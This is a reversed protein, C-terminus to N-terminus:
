RRFPHLPDPAPARAKQVTAYFEALTHEQGDRLLKRIYSNVFRREKEALGGVLEGGGGSPGGRPSPRAAAEAAAQASGPRSGSADGAGAAPAARVRKPPPAEEDADGDSDSSSEDRESGDGSAQRGGATRKNNRASQRSPQQAPSPQESQPPRKEALWERWRAIRVVRDGELRAVTVEGSQRSSGSLSTVNIVSGGVPPGAPHAADFAFCKQHKKGPPGDVPCWGMESATVRWMGSESDLKGPGVFLV